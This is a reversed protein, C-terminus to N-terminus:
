ALKDIELWYCIKGDYNVENSPTFNCPKNMARTVDFIFHNNKEVLVEQLVKNYLERAALTQYFGNPQDMMKLWIFKPENPVVAGSRALALENYKKERARTLNNAIWHIAKKIIQKLGFDFCDIYRIIDHNPIILVMRPLKTMAHKENLAKIFAKVIQVLINKQNSEPKTSCCRVNYENFLYPCRSKAIVAEEYMAPFMHYTDNIFEDGIIWADKFATM